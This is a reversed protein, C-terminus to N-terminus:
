QCRLAVRTDVNDFQGLFREPMVGWDHIGFRKICNYQGSDPIQYRIFDGKEFNVYWNSVGSPNRSSSVGSVISGPITAMSHNGTFFAYPDITGNAQVTCNGKSDVKSSGMGKADKKIGTAVGIHFHTAPMKAVVGIEEGIRVMDGYQWSRGSRPSEGIVIHAYIVTVMDGNTTMHQVLVVGKNASGWLQGADLIMGDAVAIVEAGEKARLDLGLHAKTGHDDSSDSPNDYNRYSASKDANKCGFQLAGHMATIVTSEKLPFAWRLSQAHSSSANLSIALLLSVCSTLRFFSSYSM